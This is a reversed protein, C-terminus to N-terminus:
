NSIASLEVDLNPSLEKFVYMKHNSAGQLDGHVEKELCNHFSSYGSNPAWHRITPLTFVKECSIFFGLLYEFSKCTKWSHVYFWCFILQSWFLNMRAKNRLYGQLSNSKITSATFCSRYHEDASGVSAQRHLVIKLSCVLPQGSLHKKISM